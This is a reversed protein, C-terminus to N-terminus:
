DDDDFLALIILVRDEDLAQEAFTEFVPMPVVQGKTAIVIPEDPDLRSLESDTLKDPLEPALLTKIPPPTTPPIFISGRPQGFAPLVLTEGPSLSLADGPLGTVEVSSSARRSVM